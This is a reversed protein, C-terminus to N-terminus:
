SMVLGRWSFNCVVDRVAVDPVEAFIVKGREREWDCCIWIFPRRLELYLMRVKCYFSFLGVLPRGGFCCFCLGVLLRFLSAIKSENWM